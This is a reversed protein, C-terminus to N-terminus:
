KRGRRVAPYSPKNSLNRGYPCIDTALTNLMTVRCLRAERSFVSIQYGVTQHPNTPDCQDRRRIGLGHNGDVATNLVVLRLSVADLTEKLAVGSVAGLPFSM